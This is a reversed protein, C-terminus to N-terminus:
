REFTFPIYFGFGLGAFISHQIDTIKNGSKDAPLNALETSYIFDRVELNLALWDTLFVRTGLGINGALNFNSVPNGAKPDIGSGLGGFGVLFFVDHHIIWEGLLNLKGYIPTWVFDLAFNYKLDATAADDPAGQKRIIVTDDNAFNLNYGFFAQVAVSDVFHYTAAAGLMLRQKFPENVAYSAFPQIEFRGKKIFSKKAVTKIKDDLSKTVPSEKTEEPAQGDQGGPAPPNQAWAPAAILMLTIGAFLCRQKINLM